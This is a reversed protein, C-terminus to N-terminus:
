RRDRTRLHLDSLVAFSWRQPSTTEPILGSLPERVADTSVTPEIAVLAQDDDDDGAIAAPDTDLLEYTCATGLVVVLM